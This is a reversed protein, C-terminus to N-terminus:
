DFKLPLPLPQIRQRTGIGVGMTVGACMSMRMGIRMGVCMLFQVALRM